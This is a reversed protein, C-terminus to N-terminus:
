KAGTPDLQSSVPSALASHEPHAARAVPLLRPRDPRRRRSHRVATPHDAAAPSTAVTAVAGVALLVAAWRALIDARFLAIGFIIGGVIYTIGVQILTQMRGVDGIPTGSTAVALVDNVYGPQSAALDPLVFM